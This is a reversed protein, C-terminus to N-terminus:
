KSYFTFKSHFVEGPYVQDLTEKLDVYRKRFLTTLGNNSTITRSCHQVDRPSRILRINTFSGHGILCVYLLDETISNEIFRIILIELNTRGNDQFPNTDVRLIIDDKQFGSHNVLANKM